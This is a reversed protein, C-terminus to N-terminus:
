INGNIDFATSVRRSIICVPNEDDDDDDTFKDHESTSFSRGGVKTYKGIKELM